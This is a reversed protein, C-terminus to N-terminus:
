GFQERIAKAIDDDASLKLEREFEREKKSFENDVANRLKLWDFCSLGVLAKAAETIKDYDVM